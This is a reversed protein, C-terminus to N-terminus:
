IPNTSSVLWVLVLYITLIILIAQDGYRARARQSGDKRDCPAMSPPVKYAPRAVDVALVTAGSALRLATATGLTSFIRQM